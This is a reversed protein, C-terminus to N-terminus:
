ILTSCPSRPTRRTRCRGQQPVPLAGAGLAYVDTRGDIEKSEIQEPAAYDITGLFFGTGPSGQRGPRSPLAFDTLYVHENEGEAGAALLINGPEADAIFWVRPTRQTLAASVQSVIGVAREQTLRGERALLAGLDTGDVYRM